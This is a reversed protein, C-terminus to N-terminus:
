AESDIEWEGNVRVWINGSPDPQRDGVEGKLFLSTPEWGDDWVFWLGGPGQEYKGFSNSLGFKLSAGKGNRGAPRVKHKVNDILEEPFDMVRGDRRVIREKKGDWKAQLEAGREIEVKRAGEQM